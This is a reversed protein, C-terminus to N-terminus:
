LPKLPKIKSLLKLSEYLILSSVPIYILRIPLRGLFIALYAEGYLIHLWLPNLFLDAVLATLSMTLFIRKFSLEKNYLMTGYLFGRIAATLTFGPFYPQGASNILMGLIDAAAAAFMSFWPGLYYGCLANPLFQLSIRNILMLTVSLFRTTVIDLALFLGSLVTKKTKQM